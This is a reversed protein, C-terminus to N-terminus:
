GLSRVLLDFRAANWGAAGVTMVPKGTAANSIQIQAGFPRAVHTVQGLDNRYSMTQTLPDNTIEAHVHGANDQSIHRGAIEHLQHNVHGDVPSRFLYGTGTAQITGASQGQPLAVHDLGGPQSHFSLAHQGTPLQVHSVPSAAFHPQHSFVDASHSIGGLGHDSPVEGSAHWVNPPAVPAAHAYSGALQHSPVQPTNWSMFHDAASSSAPAPAHAFSVAHGADHPAAFHAANAHAIAGAAGVEGAFAMPSAMADGAAFADGVGTHADFAVPHFDFAAKILPLLLSLILLPVISMIEFARRTTYGMAYARALLVHAGLGGVLAALPAGMPEPLDASQALDTAYIQLLVAGGYMVLGLLIVSFNELFFRIRRFLLYMGYGFPLIALFPIIVSAVVLLALVALVPLSKLIARLAAAAALTILLLLGTGIDLAGAACIGGYGVVIIIHLPISRLATARRQTVTNTYRDAVVM